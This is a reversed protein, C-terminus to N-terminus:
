PVGARRLLFPGALTVFACGALMLIMGPLLFDRSRLGGQGYVMANPPTSIVFPAGMSAALAVLVAIQSAKNTLM